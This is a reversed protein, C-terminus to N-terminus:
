DGRNKGLGFIATGLYTLGIIVWGIIFYAIGAIIAGLPIMLIGALVGNENFNYIISYIWGGLLFLGIIVNLIVASGIITGGFIKRIIPIGKKAEIAVKRKRTFLWLGLALYVMTLALDLPIESISHKALAMGSFIYILEVLAVLCLIGGITKLVWYMTFGEHPLTIGLESLMGM